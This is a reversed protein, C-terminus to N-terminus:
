KKSCYKEISKTIVRNAYFIGVLMILSLLLLINPTYFLGAFVGMCIPFIFKNQQINLDYLEELSYYESFEELNEESVAQYATFWSNIFNIGLLPIFIMGLLISCM